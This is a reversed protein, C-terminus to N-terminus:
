LTMMEKTISRSNKFFYISVIENVLQNEIENLRLAHISIIDSHFNVINLLEIDEIINTKAKNVEQIVEMRIENKFDNFEEIIPGVVFNM